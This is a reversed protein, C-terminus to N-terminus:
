TLRWSTKHPQPRILYDNPFRHQMADLPPALSARLPLSGVDKEAPETLAPSTGKAVWLWTLILDVACKTPLIKGQDFSEPPVQAHM